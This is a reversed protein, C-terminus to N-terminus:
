IQFSIEILIKEVDKREGVRVKENKGREAKRL